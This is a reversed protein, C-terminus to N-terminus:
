EAQREEAKEDMKQEIREITESPIIRSLYNRDLLLWIVLCIIIVILAITLGDM